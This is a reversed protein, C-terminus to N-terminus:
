RTRMWWLSALGALLVAAGIRRLGPDTRALLQEMTRRWPGPAAFLFLGEVVAVLCLAQLLAAPM